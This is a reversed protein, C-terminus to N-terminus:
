RTVGPMVAARPCTDCNRRVDGHLAERYREIVLDALETCDGIVEAVTVDVSPHEAQWQRAVTHVLESLVGPFLLHQAIVIRRAGLVAARDLTAPLGPSTTSLYAPDVGAYGRGEWLLRAVKALEANGDPDHSGQGALVITTQDRRAHGLQALADDIRRELLDLLVPHPGLPRGYRLSLGVHRKAARRLEEPIDRKSHGASLLMIPLAVLPSMQDGTMPGGAFMDRYMDESTGKPMSGSTARDCLADIVEAISPRSLELFGGAVQFRGGARRRVREVLAFFREAGAPIRTGHGILLMTPVTLM